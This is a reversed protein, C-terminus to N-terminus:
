VFGADDLVSGFPTNAAAFFKSRIREDDDVNALAEDCDEANLQVIAENIPEDVVELTAPIEEACAAAPRKWGHKKAIKVNQMHAKKKDLESGSFRVAIPELLSAAQKHDGGFLETKVIVIWKGDEELGALWGRDARARIRLAGGVTLANRGTWFSCGGRIQKEDEEKLQQVDSNTLAAIEKIDGTDAFRVRAVDTPKDADELLWDTSHQRPEGDVQRWAKRSEPM